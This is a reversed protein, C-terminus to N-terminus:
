FTCSGISGPSIGPVYGRGQLLCLSEQCRRLEARREEYGKREEPTLNSTALAEVVFPAAAVALILLALAGSREENELKKLRAAERAREIREARRTLFESVNLTGAAMLYADYRDRWRELIVQSRRLTKVTAQRISREEAGSAGELAREAAALEREAERQYREIRIADRAGQLRARSRGQLGSRSMALLEECFGQDFSASRGAAYLAERQTQYARQLEPDRRKLAKVARETVDKAEDRFDKGEREADKAWQGAERFLGAIAEPNEPVLPAPAQRPPRGQRPRQASPLAPFTVVLALVLSLPRELAMRM